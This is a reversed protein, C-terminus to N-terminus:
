SPGSAFWVRRTFRKSRPRGREQTAVAFDVMMIGNKKVVANRDHSAVLWYTLADVCFWANLARSKRYLYTSCTSIPGISGATRPLTGCRM